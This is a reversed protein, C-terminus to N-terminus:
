ARTQVLWTAIRRIRVRWPPVVGDLSLAARRRAPAIWLVRAILQEGERLCPGGRRSRFSGFESIHILGIVEPYDNFAVFAGYQVVARVECHVLSVRPKFVAAAVPWPDPRLVRSSLRLKIGPGHPRVESVEVALVEGARVVKRADRVPSWSLEVTPIIGRLGSEEDVVLHAGYRSVAVVTGTLREGPGLAALLERRRRRQFSRREREARELPRPSLYMGAASIEVVFGRFTTGVLAAPRPPLEGLEPRPLFATVGDLAVVFGGPQHSTITGSVPLQRELAARYREAALRLPSVRLAGSGASRGVVLGDLQEGLFERPDRDRESAVLDRRRVYAREDRVRGILDGGDGFAAVITMRVHDGVAARIGSASPRAETRHEPEDTTSGREPM